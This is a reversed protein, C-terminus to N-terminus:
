KKRVPIESTVRGTPDLFTLEPEDNNVHLRARSMDHRDQLLLENVQLRDVKISEAAVDRARVPLRELSPPLFGMLHLMLAAVILLISTRVTEFLIAGGRKELKELRALLNRNERELKDLREALPPPSAPIEVMGQEKEV